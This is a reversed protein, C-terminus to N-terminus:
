KVGLAVVSRAPSFGGERWGEVYKYGQNIVVPRCVRCICVFSVNMGVAARYSKFLILIDSIVAM